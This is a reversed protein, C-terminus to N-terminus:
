PAAASLGGDRGPWLPLRIIPVGDRRERYPWKPMGWKAEPYHPHAAVVLVDHGLARLSQALTTTLPGNGTPEPGYYCTWLQINM